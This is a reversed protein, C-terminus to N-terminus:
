DGEPEEEELEGEPQVETEEIDDDDGAEIDGEPAACAGMVMAAGLFFPLVLFRLKM